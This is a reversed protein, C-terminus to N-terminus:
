MTKQARSSNLNCDRALLMAKAAKKVVRAYKNTRETNTCVVKQKQNISIFDFWLTQELPYENVPSSGTDPRSKIERDAM